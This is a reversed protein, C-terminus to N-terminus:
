DKLKQIDEVKVGKLVLYLILYGIIDCIDNIYLNGSNTIRGIKDDLRILISTEANGKYFINKPELASNGYKKNKYILLDSISECISKIDKQTDTLIITDNQTNSDVNIFDTFSKEKLFMILEDLSKITDKNCFGLILISAFYKKGLANKINCGIIDDEVFIELIAKTTAHEAIIKTDTSEVVYFNLENLQAFFDNDTNYIKEELSIFKSM